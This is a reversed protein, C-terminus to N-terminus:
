YRTHGGKAAIVAAVRDPMSKVLTLPLDGLKEDWARKLGTAYMDLKEISRGPAEDNMSLWEQHFQAKLETWLHEIPNLDPSNAPWDMVILHHRKFFDKTAMAKHIPANDQMFIYDGITAVQIEDDNPGRDVRNLEEIFPLLGQQLTAIYEAATIGGKKFTLLPGLVNGAFCGWVMISTRQGKFITTLCDNKWKENGRRYVWTVRSDKGIEIKSKDSWIVRIWDELTWDKHELAWQLRDAIHKATLFPKKAAIYKKLGAEKLVRRTTSKSINIPALNTIDSLTRRRSITAKRVILRNDRETTKKPRGSSKGIGVFSKWDHRRLLKNITSKDRGVRSAIQPPLAGGDSMGLIYAAELNDIKDTRRTSNEKDAM